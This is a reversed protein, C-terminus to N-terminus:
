DDTDLDLYDFDEHFQREEMREEIARRIELSRASQEKSSLAVVADISESDDEEGVEDSDDFEDIEATVEEDEADGFEDEETDDTDGDLREEEASEDLGGDKDSAM